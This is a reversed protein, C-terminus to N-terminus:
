FDGADHVQREIVVTVETAIAETEEAIAKHVVSAIDSGVYSDVDNDLAVVVTLIVMRM